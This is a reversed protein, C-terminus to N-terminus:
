VTDNRPYLVAKGRECGNMRGSFKPIRNEDDMPYLLSANREGSKVDNLKWRKTRPASVPFIVFSMIELAAKAIM